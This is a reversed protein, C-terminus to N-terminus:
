VEHIDDECYDKEAHEDGDVLEAMERRSLQQADLDVLEGYAHARGYEFLLLALGQIGEAAQGYAAVAGHLALVLVGAVRGCLKVTCGPQFFSM